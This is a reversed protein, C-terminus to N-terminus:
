SIVREREMMILRDVELSMSNDIDNQNEESAQSVLSPM